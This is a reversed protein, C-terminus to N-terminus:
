RVVNLSTSTSATSSSIENILEETTTSVWVSKDSFAKDLTPQVIDLNKKFAESLKNIPNEKDAYVNVPKEEYWVLGVGYNIGIVLVTLFIAVSISFIRKKEIPWGMVLKLFGRKNENKNQEM